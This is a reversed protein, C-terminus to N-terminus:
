QLFEKDSKELNGVYFHIITKGYEHADYKRGWTRMQEETLLNWNIETATGRASFIYVYNTSNILQETKQISGFFLGTGYLGRKTDTCIPYNFNLLDAKM